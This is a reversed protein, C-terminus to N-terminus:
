GSLGTAKLPLRMIIRTGRQAASHVEISGGHATMISYSVALGMGLGQGVARTTFFPNFIKNKIDDSIGHGNDDIKVVASGDAAYMHVRIIGKERGALAKMANDLVASFVRKLQKARGRCILPPHLDRTLHINGSIKEQLECLSSEMLSALECDTEAEKDIEAFVQMSSVIDRVRRLNHQTEDLLMSIDGCVFQLDQQRYFDELAQLVGDKEAAPNAQHLIRAFEILSQTYEKLTALNATVIGMPNNIEHAVGAALHGISALKETQVLQSKTRQLNDAMENFHRALMGIEDSRNVAVSVQTNGQGLADCSIRLEKIPRTFNKALRSALLAILAASVLMFIFVLLKTNQVAQMVQQRPVSLALYASFTPLYTASSFFDGEKLMAQMHNKHTQLDQIEYEMLTKSTNLGSLFVRQWQGDSLQAVLLNVDDGPQLSDYYFAQLNRSPIKVIVVGQLREDIMLVSGVYFNIEQDQDMEPLSTVPQFQRLSKQFTRGIQSNAWAPDHLNAGHEDGHLLSMVVDGGPVIFYIDSYFSNEVFSALYNIYKDEADQMALGDAGQQVYAMSFAQMAANLSPTQTFIRLNKEQARFYSEMSSNINNLRRQLEEEAQRLQNSEFQLNIVYGAIFVPVLGILLLYLTLRAALHRAYYDRLQQWMQRLHMNIRAM